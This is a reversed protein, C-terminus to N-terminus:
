HPYDSTKKILGMVRNHKQPNKISERIYWALAETEPITGTIASYFSECFRAFRSNPHTSLKHSSYKEFFNKAYDVCLSKDWKKPQGRTQQGARRVEGHIEDLAARVNVAIARGDRELKPLPWRKRPPPKRPLTLKGEFLEQPSVAVAIGDGSTYMRFCIDRWDPYTEARQLLKLTKAISKDLQKFFEPRPQKREKEEVQGQAVQLVLGLASRTSANNPAGAIKLLEDLDIM